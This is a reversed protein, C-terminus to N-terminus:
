SNVSLLLSIVLAIGVGVCAAAFVLVRHYHRRQTSRPAKGWATSRLQLRRAETMVPRYAETDGLHLRGEGAHAIRDTEHATRPPATTAQLM